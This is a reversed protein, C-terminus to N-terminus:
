IEKERIRLFTVIWFGVPFVFVVFFLPLRQILSLQNEGMEKNMLIDMLAYNNQSISFTTYTLLMIIIMIVTNLIFISLVTKLFPQRQFTLYGVMYMSQFGWIALLGKLNFYNFMNMSAQFKALSDFPLVNTIVSLLYYIGYTLLPLILIYKLWFALFRETTSVPLTYEMVGNYKTIKPELICPGIIITIITGTMLVPVLSWNTLLYFLLSFLYAGLVIALLYLYQGKTFILNRKIYNEFRQFSFITNM